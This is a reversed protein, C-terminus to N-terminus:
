DLNHHGRYDLEGDPNHKSIPTDNSKSISASYKLFSLLSATKKQIQKVLM